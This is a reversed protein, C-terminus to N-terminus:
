LGEDDTADAIDDRHLYTQGESCDAALPCWRCPAGPSKTPPRGEVRLEILAHVGDLTRRLTSRLMNETVDEVIPPAADLYFSALKLPPVQRYLTEVIAYFRLDERHRPVVRGTKFDVILKRSEREFPKGMTLDARGRLLIQGDVPWQTSSETVPRSRPDLPPFCEMFKTVHDSCMARLDALDGQGLTELWPSLGKEENLLRAIAEDVLEAPAAEGRWNILLQIARHSVQGRARSPTWEFEDPALFQTECGFVGALTHKTVFVQNGDLRDGFHAFAENAEERLEAVLEASFVLPETTRRILDLTSEQAPTLRSTPASSDSM